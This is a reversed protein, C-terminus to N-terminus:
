TSSTHLGPLCTGAQRCGSRSPRMPREWNITHGLMFLPRRGVPSRAPSSVARGQRNGGFPFGIEMDLDALDMNYYAVFPAGSPQVGLQGAYEMIAGYAQGVVQPLSEVPAAYPYGTNATIPSGAARM